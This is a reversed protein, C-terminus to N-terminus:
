STQRAARRLRARPAVIELNNEVKRVGDVSLTVNQALSRNAQGPAAGHLAVTGSEDVRVEVRMRRLQSNRQFRLLIEERLDDNKGM